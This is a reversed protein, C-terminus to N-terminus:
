GEAAEIAGSVELWEEEAKGLADGPAPDDATHWSM